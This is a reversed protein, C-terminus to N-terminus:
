NWECVGACTSYGSAPLIISERGCAAYVARMAAKRGCFFITMTGSAALNGPYNPLQHFVLAAGAVTLPVGNRLDSVLRVIVGQIFRLAGDTTPGTVGTRGADPVQEKRKGERM